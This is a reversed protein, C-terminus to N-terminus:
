ICIHIYIYIYIHIDVSAHACRYIYIYIYVCVLEGRPAALTWRRLASTARSPGYPSVYM